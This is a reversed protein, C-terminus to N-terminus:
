NWLSDTPGQLIKSNDCNLKYRQCWLILERSSESILPRLYSSIIKPAMASTISFPRYFLFAERWNNKKVATLPQTKTTQPNNNKEDCDFLNRMFALQM